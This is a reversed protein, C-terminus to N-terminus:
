AYALKPLQQPPPPAISTDVGPTTTTAITTWQQVRRTSPHASQVRRTSPSTVAPRRTQLRITEFLAASPSSATHKPTASVSTEVARENVLWEDFAKLMQRRCNGNKEEIIGIERQHDTYDAHAQRYQQKLNVLEADLKHVPEGMMLAAGAGHAHGHGHTAGGDAKFYSEIQKKEQAARDIGSKLQNLRIALKRSATRRSHLATNNSELIAAYRKGATTKFLEFMEDRRMGSLDVAPKHRPGLKLGLDGLRVAAFGEAALSRAKEALSGPKPHLDYEAHGFADLAVRIIDEKRIMIDKQEPTAAEIINAVDSEGRKLGETLVGLAQLYLEHASREPHGHARERRPSSRPKKGKNMMRPGDPDATGTSVGGGTLKGVGPHEHPQNRQLKAMALAKRAHAKMDHGSTKSHNRDDPDQDSVIMNRFVSFLADVQRIGAIPIEDIEFNLYKDALLEVEHQEFPNLPATPVHRRDLADRMALEKQLISIEGKLRAITDAATLEVQPETVSVIGRMRQALRLTAVTYEALRADSSITAIVTTASSRGIADRLFHTLKSQRYPLFAQQTPKANTASVIVRELCSLSLNIHRIEDATHGTEERAERASGPRESIRSSGALDVFTLKSAVRLTGPDNNAPRHDINITFICHSPSGHGQSQKRAALGGFAATLAEAESRVKVIELGKVTVAEGDDSIPLDVGQRHPPALLDHLKNKYVEVCTVSLQYEASGREEVESFLLTLARPLIGRDEFSDNTGFMTHEQGTGARGYAMLTQSVGDLAANVAQRGTDEFVDAQTRNHLVRDFAFQWDERQHNIFSKPNRKAIHVAITANQPDIRYTDRSFEDHPTTRVVVTAGSM